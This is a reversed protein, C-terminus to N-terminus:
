ARANVRRLHNSLERQIEEVQPRFRELLASRERRWRENQRLNLRIASGSVGLDRLLGGEAEELTSFEQQRQEEYDRLIGGWRSSAEELHGDRVVAQIGEFVRATAEADELDMAQCM